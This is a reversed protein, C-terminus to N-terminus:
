EVEIEIVEWSHNEYREMQTEYWDACIKCGFGDVEEDDEVDCNKVHSEYLEEYHKCKLDYEEQKSKAYENAKEQCFFGKETQTITPEYPEVHSHEILFLRM